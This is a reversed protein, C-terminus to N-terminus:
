WQNNNNDERGCSLGAVQFEYKDATIPTADNIMASGLQREFESIVRSYDATEREKNSFLYKAALNIFMDLYKAPLLLEETTDVTGTTFHKQWTGDNNVMNDSFYVLEVEQPDFVKLQDVRINNCDTMSSSYNVKILFYDLNSSDPSGTETANDWKFDLRNWTAEFDGGTITTTATNSWYNSSDSGWRLEVSTIYGLQDSTLSHLGLWFRFHGINEYDSCDVKSSLETTTSISAYDNVSQSVDINFNFCGSGVKVRTTDETLTTADSSTTDSEWTGNSDLDDMAHVITDGMGQSTLMRLINDGAREEVTYINYKKGQGNAISFKKEDVEEFEIVHSTNNTKVFRLDWNQKWDSIGLSNEISYDSENSLYEFTAVRKSASWNARTQLYDMARNYAKIRTTQDLPSGVLNRLERQVNDDIDALTIM